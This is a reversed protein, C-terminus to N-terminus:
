ANRKTDGENGVNLRRSITNGQSPSATTVAILAALALIISKKM